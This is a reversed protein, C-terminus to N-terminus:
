RGWNQMRYSQEALAAATDPGYSEPNFNPHASRMTERVPPLQMPTRTVPNPQNWKLMNRFGQASKTGSFDENVLDRGLQNLGALSGKGAEIARPLLNRNPINVKFDRLKSLVPHKADYKDQYQSREPM